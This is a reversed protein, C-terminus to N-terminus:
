QSCRPVWLVAVVLVDSPRVPQPPHCLSGARVGRLLYDRAGRVPRQPQARSGDQSPGGKGAHHAAGGAASASAKGPGYRSGHRATDGEGGRSM